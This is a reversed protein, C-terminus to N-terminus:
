TDTPFLIPFALSFRLHEVMNQLATLLIFMLDSMQRCDRLRSWIVHCFTQNKELSYFSYYVVECM